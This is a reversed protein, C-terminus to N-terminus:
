VWFSEVRRKGCFSSLTRKTVRSSSPFTAAADVSEIQGRMLLPGPIRQFGSDLISRLNSFVPCHNVLALGAEEMAGQRRARLLRLDSYM